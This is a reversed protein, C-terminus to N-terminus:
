SFSLNAQQRIHSWYDHSPPLRVHGHLAAVHGHGRRGLRLIAQLLREELDPPHDRPLVVHELADEDAEQGLTLQQDLAHRAQRLGQRDLRGGADEAAGEGADLERGIEDRRVEDPRTDVSWPLPREVGLEPRDEAVEQERVLDVACRGLHLGRQELHHLLALHRDAVGCIRYGLREKDHRRLVRDLRLPRVRQRLSLDVPEHELHQDVIRLVVLLQRDDLTLQDLRWLEPLREREFIKAGQLLGDEGDVDVGREHAKRHRHCCRRALRGCVSHRIQRVEDRVPRTWAPRDAEHLSCARQREYASTVVNEGLIQLGQRLVRQAM